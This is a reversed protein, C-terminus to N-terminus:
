LQVMMTLESAADDHTVSSKFWLQWWFWKDDPQHVLAIYIDLDSIYCLKYRFYQVLSGKSYWPRSKHKALIAANKCHAQNIKYM